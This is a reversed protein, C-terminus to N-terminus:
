RVVLVPCGARGLVEVIREVFAEGGAGAPAAPLVLTMGGHARLAAAIGAADATGLENLEAGPGGSAAVEAADRQAAARAAADDAPVLICV